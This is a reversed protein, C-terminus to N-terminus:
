KRAQELASKVTEVDAVELLYSEPTKGLAVQSDIVIYGADNYSQVLESIAFKLDEEPLTSWEKAVKPIDLIKIKNTQQLTEVQVRTNDIAASYAIFGVATSITLTLLSDIFLNSKGKIENGAAKTNLKENSM